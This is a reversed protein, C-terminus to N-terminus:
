PRDEGSGDHCGKPPRAGLGNDRTDPPRELEERTRPALAARATDVLQRTRGEDAQLQEALSTIGRPTAALAVVQEASTIGVDRLRDIHENSWGGLTDLATESIADRGRDGPASDPASRMRDPLPSARYRIVV